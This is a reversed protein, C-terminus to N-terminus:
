YIFTIQFLPLFEFLSNNSYHVHKNYKTYLPMCKYLGPSKSYALIKIIKSMYLTHERKWCSLLKKLLYKIFYLTKM